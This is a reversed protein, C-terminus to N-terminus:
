IRFCVVVVSVQFFGEGSSCSEPCIMLVYMKHQLMVVRVLVAVINYNTRACVEYDMRLISENM